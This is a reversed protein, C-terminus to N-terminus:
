SANRYGQIEEGNDIKSIELRAMATSYTKDEKDRTRLIKKHIIRNETNFNYDRTRTCTLNDRHLGNLCTTSFLYLEM